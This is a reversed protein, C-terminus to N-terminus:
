YEENQMIQQVLTNDGWVGPSDYPRDPFAGYDLTISLHNQAIFKEAMEGLSIPQGSCCNIIGTYKTQLSCAVIQVALEAVSLFDYKNKGSTFPFKAKGEKDAALMKAFVSNNQLDDGYIYYGRLWKVNVNKQKGILLLAQRLANKAIGYMSMPEAPTDNQIAGEWYGIEHMTGMASINKIGADIAANIFDIHKPLDEMHSDANHNFGNRWALHILADVGLFIDTNHADLDFVNINTYHCGSPLRDSSIDCAIVEHGKNLLEKVVHNGIYGNAGTVLVKM